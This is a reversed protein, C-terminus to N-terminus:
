HGCMYQIKNESSDDDLITVVAMAPSICIGLLDTTNVLTLFFQENAEFINDDEVFVPTVIFPLFREDLM